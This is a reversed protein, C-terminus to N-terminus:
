MLVLIQMSMLLILLYTHRSHMIDDHANYYMDTPTGRVESGLLDLEPYYRDPSTNIEALTPEFVTQEIETPLPYAPSIRFNQPNNIAQLLHQPFGDRLYKNINTLMEDRETYADGSHNAILEASLVGQDLGTNYKVNAPPTNPKIM